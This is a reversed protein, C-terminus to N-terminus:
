KKKETPINLKREEIVANNYQYEYIGQLKIKISDISALQKQTNQLENVWFRFQTSDKTQAYIKYFIGSWFLLIVLFVIRRYWCSKM